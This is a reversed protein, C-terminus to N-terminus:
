ATTDHTERECPETKNRAKKKYRQRLLKALQTSSSSIEGSHGFALFSLSSLFIVFKKL